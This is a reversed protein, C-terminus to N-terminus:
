SGANTAKVLPDKPGQLVCPLTKLRLLPTLIPYSCFTELTSDPLNNAICLPNIMIRSQLKLLPTPQNDEEATTGDGLRPNQAAVAARAQMKAVKKSATGIPSGTLATKGRALMGKVGKLSMKHKTRAAKKAANPATTPAPSGTTISADGSVRDTSSPSKRGGKPKRGFRSTLSKKAM